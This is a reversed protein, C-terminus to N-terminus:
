LSAVRAGWFMEIKMFSAGHGQSIRDTEAVGNGARGCLRM